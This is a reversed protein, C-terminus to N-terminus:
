GYLRPFISFFYFLYLLPRQLFWRWNFLFNWCRFFFFHVYFIVINRWPRNQARVATLALGTKGNCNLFFLNKKKKKRQFHYYIYKRFSFPFIFYIFFFLALRIIYFTFLLRKLEVWWFYLHQHLMDSVDIKAGLGKRNKQKPQEFGLVLFFFYKINHTHESCVGEDVLEFPSRISDNPGAKKNKFFEMTPNLAYPKHTDRTNNFFSAM